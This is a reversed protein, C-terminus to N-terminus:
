QDLHKKRDLLKRELHYRLIENLKAYSKEEGHQIIDQWYLALANKLQESKDLQKRYLSELFTDNPLERVNLCTNSRDNEFQQLNDRRLEMSLLEGWELMAGYVESLKFHKYLVWAVQRGKIMKGEMSLATEKVQVQKLFEGSLIKDLEASLKADLQPFAGSDESAQFSDAKEVETIWAFAEQSFRSAAAVQKKFSLKWNRFGTISPWPKIDIKEDWLKGNPFSLAQGRKIAPAPFAPKTKPKTSPFFSQKLDGQAESSSSQSYVGRAGWGRSGEEEEEEDQKGDSSMEFHEAQEGRSRRSM